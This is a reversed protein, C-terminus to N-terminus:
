FLDLSADLLKEIERKKEDDINGTVEEKIPDNIVETKKEPEKITKDMIQVPEKDKIENIVPIEVIDKENTIETRVEESSINETFSVKTGETCLKKLMEKIQKIDEKIEPDTTNTTQRHKVYFEIADRMFQSKSKSNQLAKRAEPSLKTENIQISV